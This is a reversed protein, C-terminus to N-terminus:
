NVENKNQFQMLKIGRVWNLNAKVTNQLNCSRRTRSTIILNKNVRDDYKNQTSIMQPPNAPFSSLSHTKRFYVRLARNISSYLSFCCKFFPVTLVSVSCLWLLAAWYVFLYFCDSSPFLVFFLFFSRFNNLFGLYLSRLWIINMIMM